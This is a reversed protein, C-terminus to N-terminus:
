DCDRVVFPAVPLPRIQPSGAPAALQELESERWQARQAIKSARNGAEAMARRLIQWPAETDVPAVKCPADKLQPLGESCTRCATSVLIFGSEVM